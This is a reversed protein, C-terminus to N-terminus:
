PLDPQGLRMQRLLVYRALALHSTRTLRWVEFGCYARSYHPDTAHRRAMVLAPQEDATLPYQFQRPRDAPTVSAFLYIPRVRDPPPDIPMPFEGVFDPMNYIEINM